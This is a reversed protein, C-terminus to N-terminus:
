ARSPGEAWRYGFGPYNTIASFSQDKATFKDRLRKILARVNTRYGETGDGAIFNEGRMADYIERYSVDCGAQALVSIVRFEGFTLDITQGRWQVGHSAVDLILSGCRLPLAVDDAQVARSLILEIRKRLIAFSRTKDIFDVAGWTLAAEEFLTDNYSTFFLTATHVGNTRLCKLLDLGTMGPMRWDLILLDNTNGPKELFAQAEVPDGFQRVMYGAEVLNGALVSRVMDDDDVLVLRIKLTASM